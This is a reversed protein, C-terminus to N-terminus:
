LDNRTSHILICNHFASQLFPSFSQFFWPLTRGTISSIPSIQIGLQVMRRRKTRNQGLLYDNLNYNLRDYFYLASTSRFSLPLM